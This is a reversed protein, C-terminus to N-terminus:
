VYTQFFYRTIEICMRLNTEFEVSCKGGIIFINAVFIEFTDLHFYLCYTDIYENWTETIFRFKSM